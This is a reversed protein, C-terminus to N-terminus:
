FWIISALTLFVLGWPLFQFRRPSTVNLGALVFCILAIVILLFHITLFASPTPQLAFVPGVIRQAFMALAKM